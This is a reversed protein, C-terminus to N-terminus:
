WRHATHIPFETILQLRSLAQEPAQVTWAEAGTM